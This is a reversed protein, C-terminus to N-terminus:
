RMRGPPPGMPGHRRGGPGRGGYDIPPQENGSGGSGFTTFRYTFSLMVYRTVSNYESDEIYSANITRSINQKQHLLDYVKATITAAKNKLFQYSLSVNWLWQDSDYGQSYGQTGSYTLDTNLVLGFPTYYAGNFMGGYSHITRDNQSQVTNHTIQVNYNPRLELQVADTNFRIGPSLNVSLSGSRNYLGNNYGVTNSTGIITQIVNGTEAQSDVSSDYTSLEFHEDFFDRTGSGSDRGVAATIAGGCAATGSSYLAKVEDTTINTASSGSGVILAIGDQCLTEGTIGSSLEEDSLARSSMGFDNNGNQTDTIGAGSSSQSVTIRVDHDEEYAAALAEMLPTVSSSGTITITESGNGCASFAAVTGTLAACAAAVAVIKGFRKM